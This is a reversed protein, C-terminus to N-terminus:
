TLIFHPCGLSDPSIHLSFGNANAICSLQLQRCLPLKGRWTASTVLEQSQDLVKRYHLICCIYFYIVCNPLSLLHSLSRPSPDHSLNLIWLWHSWKYLWKIHEISAPQAVWETREPRRYVTVLFPTLLAATWALQKEAERGGGLSRLFRGAM